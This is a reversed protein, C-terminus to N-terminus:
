YISFAFNPISRISGIIRYMLFHQVIRIVLIDAKERVILSSYGSCLIIPIDPKIELIRKALESGPIHPMTQDTIVLDFQKPNDRFCELAKISDTTYNVQYGLGELMETLMAAIPEEDDVLLINETGSPLSRNKVAKAYKEQPMIEPLFLTFTTGKGPESYVKIHGKHYEVRISVWFGGGISM